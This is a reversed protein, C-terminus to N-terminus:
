VPFRFTRSTNVSKTCCCLTGLKKRFSGNLEIILWVQWTGGRDQLIHAAPAIIVVPGAPGTDEVVIVLVHVVQELVMVADMAEFCLRTIASVVAGVEGLESVLLRKPSDEVRGSGQLCALCGAFIYAFQAKSPTDVNTLDCM